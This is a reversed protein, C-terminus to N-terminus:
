FAAGEQTLTGAESVPLLRWSLYRKDALFVWIRKNFGGSKFCLKMMNKTKNDIPFMGSADRNWAGKKGNTELSHLRCTNTIFPLIKKVHEEQNLIAQYLHAISWRQPINFHLQETLKLSAEETIANRWTRFPVLLTGEKDFAMYGHMMASIGISGIM